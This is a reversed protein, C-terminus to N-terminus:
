VQFKDRQDLFINFKTASAWILVCLGKAWGNLVAAPPWVVKRRLVQVLEGYVAKAVLDQQKEKEDQDDLLPGGNSDDDDGEDEFNYDVSWLAEQFLYWFGLTMESEEEDAGYYGPLSSYALLFKLFTQVLVARTRPTNAVPSSTALNAALYSTSHDGIAVLLKCLSHSIGDVFGV